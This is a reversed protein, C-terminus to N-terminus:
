PNGPVGALHSEGTDFASGLAATDLYERMEVVKGDRFTFVMVFDTVFDRGTTKARGSYHGVAAVRDGEAVFDRPEFTHFEANEKLIKFFRAVEDRGFRRGAHPVHPPAPVDWVVDDAIRDLIAPIDGRKFGAYIDRVVQTNLEEM